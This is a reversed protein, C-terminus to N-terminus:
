GARAVVLAFVLLVFGAIFQQLPTPSIIHAASLGAVVFSQIAMGYFMWEMNRM